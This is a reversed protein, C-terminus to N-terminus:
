ITMGDIEDIIAVICASVEGTEVGQLARLDNMEAMEGGEARWEGRRWCRVVALLANLIAPDLRHHHVYEVLVFLSMLNVQLLFDDKAYPPLSLSLRLKDQMARMMQPSPSGNRVIKQELRALSDALLQRNTIHGREPFIVTLGIGAIIMGVTAGLADGVWADFGIMATNDPQFCFYFTTLFTVGILFGKASVLRAGGYGLFPLQFAFWLWPYEGPWPLGYVLQIFLWSAVVGQLTGGTIQKAATLSAPYNCLLIAYVTGLTVMTSGAQWGTIYWVAFLAATILLTRLGRKLAQTLSQYEPYHPRHGSLHAARSSARWRKSFALMHSLVAEIDSHLQESLRGGGPLAHRLLNGYFVLWLGGWCFHGLANVQRLSLGLEYRVSTRNAILPSLQGFLTRMDEQQVAGNSRSHWRIKQLLAALTDISRQLDYNSYRLFLLLSTVVLVTMGLLVNTARFVLSHFATGPNNLLPIAVFAYTYGALQFLYANESRVMSSVLTMFTFWILSMAIFALPQEPYCCAVLCSFAIGLATGLARNRAKLYQAGVLSQSVVIASMVSTAAGDISLWFSLYQIIIIAIALHLVRLANFSLPRM